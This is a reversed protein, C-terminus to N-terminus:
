LYNEGIYVLLLMVDMTIGWWLIIEDPGNIIWHLWDLNKRARKWRKRFIYIVQFYAALSAYAPISPPEVM